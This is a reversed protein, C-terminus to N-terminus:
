SYEFKLDKRSKFNLRDYEGNTRRCKRNLRL